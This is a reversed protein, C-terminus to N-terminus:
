NRYKDLVIEYCRSCGHEGEGHDIIAKVANKSARNSLTYLDKIIAKIGGQHFSRDGDRKRSQVMLQMMKLGFPAITISRLPRANHKKRSLYLGETFKVRPEVGKPEEDPKLVALAVETNIVCLQRNDKDCHGQLTELTMRDSNEKRLEEPVHRTWGNHDLNTYLIFTAAPM